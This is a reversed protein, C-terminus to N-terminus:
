MSDSVLIVRLIIALYFNWTIDNLYQRGVRCYISLMLKAKLVLTNHNVLSQHKSNIYGRKLKKKLLLRTYIEIYVVNGHASIRIFVHSSLLLVLLYTRMDERAHQTM